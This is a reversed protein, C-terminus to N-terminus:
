SMDFQVPVLDESAGGTSGGGSRHEVHMAEMGRRAKYEEYMIWFKLSVLCFVFIGVYAWFWPAISTVNYNAAFLSLGSQIQYIGMGLMSIGTVRHSFHWVERPSRPLKLWGNDMDYHSASYPDRKEVPPRLFGNMVQFTVGVLLVLGVWHHPHNFHSTDTQVSMASIAVIVAILTFFFTMVNSFVHIYIWSSPVLTRFWAVTVAFPSAIAWALTAITGHAAFAGMHSKGAGGECTALDIRFSGRHAHYSFMNDKGAAYIFTNLGTSTITHTDGSVDLSNEFKLTTVGGDQEITASKLSATDKIAEIGAETKDSLLYKTTTGEEPKGIIAESGTMKGDSSVGFGLWAESEYRLAGKLIDGEVTWHFTMAPNSQVAFQNAYGVLESTCSGDVINATNKSGDSTSAGGGNATGSEGQEARAEVAALDLTLAGKKKHVGLAAEGAAGVAWLFVNQGSHRLRVEEVNSEELEKTFTLLTMVTGDDSDHQKITAGTLTQHELPHVGDTESVAKGGLGYKQVNSNAVLGIVADSGIMLPTSSSVTGTNSFTDYFGVSLWSPADALSGANHILRCDITNGKADNWHFTLEGEILTVEHDYESETSKVFGATADTFTVQSSVSAVTVLLLSLISKLFM